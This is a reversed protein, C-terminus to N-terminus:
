QFQLNHVLVERKYSISTYLCDHLKDVVNSLTNKISDRDVRQNAIVPLCVLEEVEQEKDGRAEEVEWQKTCHQNGASRGLHECTNKDWESEGAPVDEGSEEYWSRYADRHAM